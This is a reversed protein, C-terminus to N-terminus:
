TTASARGRDRFRRLIPTPMAPGTVSMAHTAKRDVIAVVNCVIMVLGGQPVLTFSASPGNPLRLSCRPAVHHAWRDRSDAATLPRKFKNM